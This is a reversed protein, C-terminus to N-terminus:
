EGRHKNLKLLTRMDELHAAQADLTGQLRHSDPTRIGEESIAEALAVMMQKADGGSLSFSPKMYEGDNVRISTGDSQMIESSDGSRRYIYIDINYRCVPRDIRVKWEGNNAM